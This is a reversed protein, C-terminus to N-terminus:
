LRRSYREGTVGRAGHGALMCSCMVGFTLSAVTIQAAVSPSHSVFSQVCTLVCHAQTHALVVCLVRVDVAM